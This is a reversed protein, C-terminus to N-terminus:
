ELDLGLEEAARELARLAHNYEHVWSAAGLKNRLRRAAELARGGREAEALEAIMDQLRVGWIPRVCEWPINRAFRFALPTEDESVLPFEECWVAAEPGSRAYFTYVRDGITKSGVRILGESVEELTVDDLLMELSAAYREWLEGDREAFEHWTDLSEQFDEAGELAADRERELAEVKSLYELVVERVRALIEEVEVESVEVFIHMLSCIYKLEGERRAGRTGGRGGHCICV